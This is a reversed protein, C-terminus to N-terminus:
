LPKKIPNKPKVGGEAKDVEFASKAVVSVSKAVLAYEKHFNGHGDKWSVTSMSGKCLVLDGVRISHRTHGLPEDAQECMNGTSNSVM